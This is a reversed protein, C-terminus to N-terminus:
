NRNIIWLHLISWIPIIMLLPTLMVQLVRVDIRHMIMANQHINEQNMGHIIGLDKIAAIGLTQQDVEIDVEVETDEGVEVGLDTEPKVEVEIENRRKLDIM